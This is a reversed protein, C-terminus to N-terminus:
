DSSRHHDLFTSIAGVLMLPVPFLWLIYLRVEAPFTPFAPLLARVDPPQTLPQLFGYAVFAVPVVVVGVLMLLAAARLRGGIVFGAGAVGLACSGVEAGDTGVGLLVYSNFFGFLGGIVPALWVLLFLLGKAM